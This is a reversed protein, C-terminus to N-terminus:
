EGRVERIDWGGGDRKLKKRIVYFRFPWLKAAVKLKVNADEEMFGKTEHAELIDDNTLVFFDVTLTTNPALTLKMGKIWFEQIEGAAKRLELLKLYDKELQNLQEKRERPRFPGAFRQWASM